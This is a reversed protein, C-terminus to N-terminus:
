NNLRYFYNLKHIWLSIPCVQGSNSTMGGRPSKGRRFFRLWAWVFGLLIGLLMMATGVAVSAKAGNNSHEKIEM